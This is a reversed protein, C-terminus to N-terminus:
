SFRGKLFELYKHHSIDPKTGLTLPQCTALAVGISMTFTVLIFDNHGEGSDLSEIGFHSPAIGFLDLLLALLVGKQGGTGFHSLAVALFGGM